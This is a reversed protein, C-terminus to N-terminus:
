SESTSAAPPAGQDDQRHARTGTGMSANRSKGKGPRIDIRPRTLVSQVFPDPSDANWAAPRIRRINVEFGGLRESSRTAVDYLVDRDATGVVLVDVDNPPPGPEGEYRAAWSGYIFALDIGDIECLEDELVPLPGFTAILLDTLPRTLRSSEGRRVLRVNGLRRDTLLGAEVLRSVERSTAGHTAHAAETLEGVTYERDPRLYTQALISGQVRSRLIPLLEPHGTHM